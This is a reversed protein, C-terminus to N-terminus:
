KGCEHISDTCVFFAPVGRDVRSNVGVDDNTLRRVRAEDEQAGEWRVSECEMLPMGGM